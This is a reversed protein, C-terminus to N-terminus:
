LSPDITFKRLKDEDLEIGLGPKESLNFQGNKAEFEESLIM